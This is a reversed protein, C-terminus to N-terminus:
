WPAVPAMATWVKKYISGVVSLHEKHAGDKKFCNIKKISRSLKDTVPNFMKVRILFTM